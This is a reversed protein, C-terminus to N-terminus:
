FLSNRYVLPTVGIYKKFIQAFHSQTQFGVMKAVDLVSYEPRKMLEVAEEVRVRTLYELVTCNLEQRFLRSLHSPSIFMYAAVDEVKIQKHHNGMIFERAGKVLSLHKKDALAYIYKLFEEVMRKAQYFIEEMTELTNIENNHQRLAAMAREADAGGEVAARAVLSTLESIRIRIEGTEGHSKTFLDALLSELTKDARTRDGLRIYRLLKREKKLYTEYNHGIEPSAKRAEIENRIQQQLKKWAEIEELIGANRRSIHSCVVFLLDAAAQTREPSVVELTHVAQKLEDINPIERNFLELEPWLFEDPKWLLVQGCIICGIASGEVIIPVAWIVLGAHCRFFYAEQWKAAEISAQSYSELCKQEGKPSSRIINCFDCRKLESPIFITEGKNNVTEVHLGTAKNFCRLIRDFYQTSALIETVPM